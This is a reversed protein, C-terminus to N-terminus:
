RGAPFVAVLIAGAFALAPTAGPFGIDALDDGLQIASKALLARPDPVIGLEWHWYGPVLDITDKIDVTPDPRVDPCPLWRGAPTIWQGGRAHRWGMVLLWADSLERSGHRASRIREILTEVNEPRDTM